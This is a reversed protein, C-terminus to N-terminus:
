SCNLIYFNINECEELSILKATFMIIKIWLKVKWSCRCIRRVSLLISDPECNTGQWLVVLLTGGFNRLIFINNLESRCASFFFFISSSFTGLQHCAIHERSHVHNTCFRRRVEIWSCVLKSSIQRRVTLNQRM